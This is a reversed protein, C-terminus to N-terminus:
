SIAPFARSRRYATRLIAAVRAAVLLAPIDCEMWISSGKM